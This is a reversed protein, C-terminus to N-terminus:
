MRGKVVPQRMVDAMDSSNRHTGQVVDAYSAVKGVCEQSTLANADHGQGPINLIIACLKRFLSGQLPKTFFDAVMDGTPCYEIRLEDHKVRDTV